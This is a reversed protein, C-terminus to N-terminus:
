KPWWAPRPQGIRRRRPASGDGVVHPTRTFYRADRMVQRHEAHDPCCTGDDALGISMGDEDTGCIFGDGLNEDDRM